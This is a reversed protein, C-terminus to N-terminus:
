RSRHADGGEAVSRAQGNIAELLDRFAGSSPVPFAHRLGVAMAERKDPPPDNPGYKILLSDRM